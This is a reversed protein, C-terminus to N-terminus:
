EEVAPRLAYSVPRAKQFVPKANDKLHLKATVGKVTGLEPKFIEGYREKLCKLQKSNGQSVWFQSGAVPFLNKWDLRMQTLWSRGLLPPAYRDAKVVLLPLTAQQEKYTVNVLIQGAIDIPTGTYAHFFKDVPKLTLHKFYREYDAFGM